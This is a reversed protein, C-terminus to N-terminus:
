PFLTAVKGWNKGLNHKSKIIIMIIISMADRQLRIVEMRLPM